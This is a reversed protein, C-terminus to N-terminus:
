SPWRLFWPRHIPRYKLFPVFRGTFGTQEDGQQIIWDLHERMIRNSESHEDSHPECGASSKANSWATVHFCVDKLYKCLDDDFLFQADLTKLGYSRIEDDSIDGFFVDRLFKRTAEYVAVRRDYLKEFADHRLKDHAILMQRAAVWVGFAAVVVALIPVALAQLYPVWTPLQSCYSM